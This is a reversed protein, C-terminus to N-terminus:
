EAGICLDENVGGQDEFVSYPIQLTRCILDIILNIQEEDSLTIFSKEHLLGSIGKLLFPSIWEVESFDDRDAAKLIEVLTTAFSPRMSELTLNHLASLVTWHITGNSLKEYERMGSIYCDRLQELRMRPTIHESQQNLLQSFQVGQKQMFLEFSKDFVEQKSTFYHYFMGVEGGVQDLIMRISTSEYGNELFLELAAKIIEDKKGGELVPKRAM